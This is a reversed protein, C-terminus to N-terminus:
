TMQRMHACGGTAQEADLLCLCEQLSGVARDLLALRECARDSADGHQDEQRQRLALAWIEGGEPVCELTKRDICLSSQRAVLLGVIPGIASPVLGASQDRLHHAKHRNGSTAM